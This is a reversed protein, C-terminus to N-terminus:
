KIKMMVLAAGAIYAAIWWAYAIRSYIHLKQPVECNIGNANKHRWILITDILMGLLSSYGLLGHLTIPGNSTGMVMFVTAVVDFFIGVTLFVLVQKNIIRKRQETIIGISYSILALQVLVVGIRVLPNMFEGLLNFM